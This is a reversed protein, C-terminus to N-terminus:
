MIKFFFKLYLTTKMLIEISVIHFCTSKLRSSILKDEYLSEKPIWGM